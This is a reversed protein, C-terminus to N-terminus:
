KVGEWVQLMRCPNMVSIVGIGVGYAKTGGIGWLARKKVSGEGGGSQLAYTGCRGPTQPTRGVM